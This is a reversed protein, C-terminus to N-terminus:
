ALNKFYNAAIVSQGLAIGGDNAPVLRHSLVEFDSNILRRFVKNLLTINQWVGGSLAVKNLGYDQCILTCLQEVLAALGNHFRASIVPTATKAYVDDILCHLMSHLSIQYVIQNQAASDLQVSHIDFHYLGAEDPDLLAELEIAAQAEYNVVQRVNALAAVADFLRGTSSTLPTNIRHELQNRLAHREDSCLAQVSPLDTDWELGAQWLLALAYRAPKRIAFDGGPLPAYALHALRQYGTYSTLMFEGGWIAGDPGYGTGDFAIGIVQDDSTLGNEAMVSAIHAHHHQVGLGPLGQSEARALAYRTALYDPHLDYALGVPMVRFLREYHEASQEFSQLTEYNEM